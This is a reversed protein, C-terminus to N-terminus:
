LPISCSAKCRAADGKLSQKQRVCAINPSIDCASGYAFPAIDGGLIVKKCNTKAHPRNQM